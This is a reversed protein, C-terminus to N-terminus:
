TEYLKNEMMIKKVEQDVLDDVEESLSRKKRILTSSIFLKDSRYSYIYVTPTVAAQEIDFCPALNEEALLAEIKEKDKEERLVVIFSLSQLLSKYNKWTRIKLFGESGSIFYFVDDPFERRLEQLTLYTWSFTPRRMEIDCPVLAPYNELAKDLMKWRIPTPAINDQQKHPPKASLIYLIKDLRFASRINLGLDVHGLHIPNFTGGLLGIRNTM